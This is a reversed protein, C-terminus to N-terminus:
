SRPAPMAREIAFRLDDGVARWDSAIAAVDSAAANGPRVRKDTGCWFHFIAAMGSLFPHKRRWKPRSAVEPRWNFSPQNVTMEPYHEYIATVLEWYSQSLVWRSAERVFRAARKAMSDLAANGVERGTESLFYVTCPGKRDTGVARDTALLSFVAFVEEDYPGHASPKFDFYPGGIEDAIEKDILFLLQHIQVPDFRAGSGGGVMAALVIESPDMTAHQVSKM